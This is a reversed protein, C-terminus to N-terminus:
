FDLFVLDIHVHEFSLKPCLVHKLDDKRVVQRSWMECAPMLDTWNGDRTTPDKGKQSVACLSNCEGTSFNQWM